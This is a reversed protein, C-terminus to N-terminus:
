FLPEWKIETEPQMRFDTYFDMSDEYEDKSITEIEGAQSM